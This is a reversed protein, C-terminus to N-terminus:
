VRAFLSDIKKKDIEKDYLICVVMNEKHFYRDIVDNIQKTTIRSYVSYLNQFPIIKSGYMCESGNYTAFTSIQEMSRLLQGKMVAKARTLEDESIGRKIDHLLKILIPIVTMVKKPDTQIFFSFYGMHEQSDMICKTSYTLGRKTRFEIFLRGSFGNMVAQLVHLIHTDKSTYKCTRFGLHILTTSIGKKYYYDVAFTDHLPLLTLCPRFTVPTTRIKALDSTTIINLIHSYPLSSVISVVMNSPVYFHTYWTMMDNYKLHTPTPHYEISDIPYQYSSGKYYHSEVRCKLLENNDDMARINEEVVVGQEKNFEKKPFISHLVMDSLLHCSHDFFQNDCTVYYGTHHKETYANTHSGIMNYERILDQVKKIKTTGTFCMHEVFHSAGRIPDMEYASGVKCFIYICTIPISKNSSQYVLELGNKFTHRKVSSM